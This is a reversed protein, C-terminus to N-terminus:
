YRFHNRERRPDANRNWSRIGGKVDNRVPPDKQTAMLRGEKDFSYSTHYVKGNELDPISGGVLYIGLEKALLFSIRRKAAEERPM